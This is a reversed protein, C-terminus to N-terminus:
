SSAAAARAGEVEGAWAIARELEDYDFHKIEAHIFLEGISPLLEAFMGDAALAVRDVKRHHERVFRMHQLFSGLNEWGPFERMHIVLGHLEGHAEIWPDVVLALADFDEARLPGTPELVLVGLDGLLRHKVGSGRPISELWAAAVDLEANDFVRVPCPMFFGALKMAERIWGIDTVVACGEFLRLASLGIRLDEWAAGPSFGDFEPGFQYIFRLRSGERRAQEVIPDIVQEYDAKTVTGIAKVGVVNTPLGDLKELM